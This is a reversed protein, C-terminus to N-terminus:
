ILAWLLAPVVINQVLLFLLIFQLTTMIKGSWFSRVQWKVQTIRTYGYFLLLSMERSLLLMIQWLELVPWFTVLAALVFLKDMIPDIITGLRSIQGLRRALYGDLFDSLAALVIAVTRILPSEVLFALAFFGRSCSILTPLNM